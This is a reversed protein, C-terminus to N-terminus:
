FTNIHTFSLLAFKAQNAALRGGVKVKYDTLLLNNVGSAATGYM